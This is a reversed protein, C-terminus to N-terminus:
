EQKGMFETVCRDIVGDIEKQPFGFQELTVPMAKFAAERATSERDWVSDDYAKLEDDLVTLFLPMRFLKVYRVVTQDEAVAELFQKRGKVSM